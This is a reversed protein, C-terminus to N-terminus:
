LIGREKLRKKIEGLDQLVSDLERMKLGYDYVACVARHKISSNPDDLLAGLTKGAKDFHSLLRGLASDAVLNRIERVRSQFTDESRKRSITKVAVKCVVAAEENTAGSAILVALLEEDLKPVNRSM